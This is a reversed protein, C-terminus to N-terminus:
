FKINVPKGKQPCKGIELAHSSCYCWHLTSIPHHFDLIAVEVSQVDRHGVLTIHGNHSHRSVDHNNWLDVLWTNKGGRIGGCGLVSGVWGRQLSDQCYSIITVRKRLDM